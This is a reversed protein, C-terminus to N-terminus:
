NIMCAYIHQDILSRCSSILRHFSSYLSWNIRQSIKLKKKKKKQHQIHLQSYKKIQHQHHITGNTPTLAIDLNYIYIYINETETMVCPVSFTHLRISSRQGTGVSYM